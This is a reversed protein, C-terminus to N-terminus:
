PWILTATPETLADERWEFGDLLVASDWVGDASDYITLTIDVATAPAVPVDMRIWGTAGDPDFGTMALDGEVLPIEANPSIPDGAQDFAISGTFADGDITAEFSDLYESGVWEPYERSLFLLHYRLSTASAPVMATLEITARDGAATDDGSAPYDYDELSGINTVRGTSLLAMTEGVLPCLVGLGTRVAFMEPSSDPTEVATVITPDLDAATLLAEAVAAEDPGNDCDLPPVFDDDDPILDDDDPFLDDDDPFLDDDDPAVDDDDPAVDDDDPPASDDDDTTSSDDDDVPYLEEVALSGRCAVLLLAFLVPLYRM